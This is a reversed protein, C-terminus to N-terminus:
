AYAQQGARLGRWRGWKQMFRLPVSHVAADLSGTRLAWALDRLVEM